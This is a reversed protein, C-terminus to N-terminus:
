SSYGEGRDASRGQGVKIWGEVAALCVEKRQEHSFNVNWVQTKGTDTM